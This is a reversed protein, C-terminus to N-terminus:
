NDKSKTQLCEDTIEASLVNATYSQKFDSSQYIRAGLRGIKIKLLSFGCFKLDGFPRLFPSVQNCLNSNMPHKLRNAVIDKWKALLKRRKLNSNKSNSGKFFIPFM